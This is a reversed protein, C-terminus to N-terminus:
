CWCLIPALREGLIEDSVTAVETCILLFHYWVSISFAAQLGELPLSLLSPFAPELLGPTFLWLLQSKTKSSSAANRICYHVLICQKEDRLKTWRDIVKLPFIEKLM